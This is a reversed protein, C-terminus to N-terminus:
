IGSRRATRLGSKVPPVPKPPAGLVGGFLSPHVAGPDNPSLENLTKVIKNHTRIQSENSKQPTFELFSFYQELTGAGTFTYRYSVSVGLAERVDLSEVFDIALTNSSSELQHIFSSYSILTEPPADVMTEDDKTIQINSLLAAPNKIYMNAVNNIMYNDALTAAGSAVVPRALIYHLYNMVGLKNKGYINVNGSDVNAADALDPFDLKVLVRDNEGVDYINQSDFWEGVPLYITARTTSGTSASFESAGGYVNNLLNLIEADVNIIDRGNWNLIVNGLNARTLTVAAAADLDYEVALVGYQGKPLYFNMSGNSAPVSHLLKM